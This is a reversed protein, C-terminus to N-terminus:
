KILQGIKKLLAEQYLRFYVRETQEVTEEMSGSTDILYHAYPKKKEEPLQAQLRAWAQEETLGNRSVLRAVQIEPPCYTLILRDYFDQYGAEIVLAAETIYIEYKNEQELETITLRIKELVAPHTIKNLYEREEEDHFVIAALKVRDISGDEKLIGQGFHHVLNKWVPTEPQMLEQALQDANQVYCGKQKLISAVVSKGTAIGGTLAVLLM